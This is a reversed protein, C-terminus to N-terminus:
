GNLEQAYHQYQTSSEDREKLVSILMQKLNTIENELSFKEQTLKDIQSDVNLSGVSTLQQIKIDALSLKGTM